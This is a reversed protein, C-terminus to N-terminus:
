NRVINGYSCYTGSVVNGTYCGMSGANSGVACALDGSGTSTCVGSGQKLDSIRVVCPPTYIARSDSVGNKKSADDM